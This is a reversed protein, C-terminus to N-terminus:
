SHISDRGLKAVERDGEAQRAVYRWLFSFRLSLPSLVQTFVAGTDLNFDQSETIIDLQNTTHNQTHYRLLVVDPPPIKIVHM